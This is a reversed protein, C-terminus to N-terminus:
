DEVNEKKRLTAEAPTKLPCIDDAHRIKSSKASEAVFANDVQAVCLRRLM